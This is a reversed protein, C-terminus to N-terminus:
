EQPPEDQATSMMVTAGIQIFNPSLATAATKKPKERLMFIYLLVGYLFCVLGIGLYVFVVSHEFGVYLGTAVFLLGLLIWVQPLREFVDSILRM